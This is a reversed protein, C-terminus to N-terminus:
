HGTLHHVSDSYVEILPSITSVVGLKMYEEESNVIVEKNRFGGPQAVYLLDPDNRYFIATKVPVAQGAALEPRPVIQLDPYVEALMQKASRRDSTSADVKTLERMSGTDVLFRNPTNAQNMTGQWDLMLGNVENYIDHPAAGSWPGSATARVASTTNYLGTSGLGSHGTIVWLRLFDEMARAMERYGTAVIDVGQAKMRKMEIFNFKAGVGFTHLGFEGKSFTIDITNSDGVVTSILDAEGSTEYTHTQIRDLIDPDIGAGIDQKFSIHDRFQFNNTLKEIFGSLAVTFPEQTFGLADKVEKYQKM